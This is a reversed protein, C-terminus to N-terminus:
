IIASSTLTEDQGPTSSAEKTGGERVSPIMLEFLKSLREFRVSSQFNRAAFAYLLPNICSSILAISGAIYSGVESINELAKSGEPHSDETLAAAISILNITHHPLWCLAFAVVVATILMASRRKSPCTMKSIRRGVCVYCISIIAFPVVFGVLTELLLCAILQTNSYYSVVMCEIGDEDDVGKFPIGGAGFAISLLWILLLGLSTAKKKKWRQIAFPYFVAMFREMSLAVILFVSAYMSSYILFTLIKCTILGFVWTKAISYIWIPLTGLVLLDAIALNLIMVITPSRQKMRGCITWIVFTNGPVGIIFALSLITCALYRIISWPLHAESEVSPSM